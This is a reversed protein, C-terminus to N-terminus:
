QLFRHLMEQHILARDIRSQIQDPTAPLGDAYHKLWTQTMAAATEPWAALAFDPATVTQGQPAM